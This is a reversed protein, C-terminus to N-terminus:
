GLFELDTIDAGNEPHRRHDGVMAAVDGLKRAMAEFNKEMRELIKTHNRSENQLDRIELLVKVDSREHNERWTELTAIRALLATWLHRLIAGLTGLLLVTLGIWAAVELWNITRVDAGMM